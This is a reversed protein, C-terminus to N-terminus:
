NNKQKEADFYFKWGTTESINDSNLNTDETRKTLNFIIVLIIAGFTIIMSLRRVNLIIEEGPAIRSERALKLITLGM